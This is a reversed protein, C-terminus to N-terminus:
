GPIPPSLELSDIAIGLRQARIMLARHFYQIPYPRKHRAYHFTSIVLELPLQQQKVLLAIQDVYQFEVPLRAQLGRELQDKLDIEIGAPLPEQANSETGTLASVSLALVLSTYPM